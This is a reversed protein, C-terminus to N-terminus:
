WACHCTSICSRHRRCVVGCSRGAHAVCLNAGRCQSCRLSTVPCSVVGRSCWHLRSCHAFCPHRPFLAMPPRARTTVFSPQGLVCFGFCVCSVCGVRPRVGALIVHRLSLVLYVVALARYIWWDACVRPACTRLRPKPGISFSPAIQVYSGDSDGGGRDRVPAAHASSNAAKLPSAAVEIRQAEAASGDVGDDDDDHALLGRRQMSARNGVKRGGM